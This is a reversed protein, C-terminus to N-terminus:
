RSVILFFLRTDYFNFNHLHLIKSAFVMASLSFGELFIPSNQSNAPFHPMSCAIKTKNVNIRRNLTHLDWLFENQAL